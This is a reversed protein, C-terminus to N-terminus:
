SVSFYENTKWVTPFSRLDIVSEMLITLTELANKGIKLTGLYVM